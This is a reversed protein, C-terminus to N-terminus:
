SISSTTSLSPYNLSFGFLISLSTQKMGTRVALVLLQATLLNSILFSEVEKQRKKELATGSLCKGSLNKNKQKLQSKIM